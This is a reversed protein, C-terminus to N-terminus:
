VQESPQCKQGWSHALDSFPGFIQEALSLILPKRFTQSGNGGVFLHPICSPELDMGTERWLM